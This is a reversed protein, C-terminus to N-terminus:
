EQRLAAAPDTRSARLAPVCAAAAAIVALAAVALLFTGPDYAKLGYLLSAAERSAALALAVGSAIGLALLLGAERM